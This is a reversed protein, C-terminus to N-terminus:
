NGELKAIRDEHDKVKIKLKEMQDTSMDRDIKANEVEALVPGIRTLVRDIGNKILDEVDRKFSDLKLDLRIELATLDGKTAPESSLINKEM